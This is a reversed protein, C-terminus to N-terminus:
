NEFKLIGFASSIHFDPTKSDPKLWSIWKFTREGNSHLKCDARFLGAQLCNDKLLGLKHLSSKTIALEVTYGNKSMSAKATLGNDPWSWDFNFNRHYNGEYDLVRCKPDIELCYYPKLRDDAKFFIEARSCSVVDLKGGKDEFISVCNDHVEFLGYFMSENHLGKFATKQPAENEWPFSFDCLDVAKNWLPDDGAGSVNVSGSIKNVPYIKM